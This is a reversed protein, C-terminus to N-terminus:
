RSLHIGVAPICNRRLPPHANCLREAVWWRWELVWAVAVALRWRHAVPQDVTIFAIERCALRHGRHKFYDIRSLCTVRVIGSSEVVNRPEPKRDLKGVGMHFLELESRRHTGLSCHEGAGVLGAEM